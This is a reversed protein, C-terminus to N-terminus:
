PKTQDLLIRRIENLRKFLASAELQMAITESWDFHEIDCTALALADSLEEEAEYLNNGSWITLERITPKRM